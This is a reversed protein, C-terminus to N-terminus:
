LLKNGEIIISAVVELKPLELLNMNEKTYAIGLLRKGNKQLKVIKEPM